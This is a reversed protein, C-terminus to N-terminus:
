EEAEDEAEDEAEADSFDFEGSITDYLLAQM